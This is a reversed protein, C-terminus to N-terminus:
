VEFRKELVLENEGGGPAGPTYLTHDVLSRILFWGMGNEPLADLDPEPVREPDFASGRDRLRVLIGEGDGTVAVDIEVEGSADGSYGHLVINNFAEGAATGLSFVFEDGIPRALKEAAAACGATVAAVILSRCRLTSPIRLHVM